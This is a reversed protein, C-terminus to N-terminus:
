YCRTEYIPETITRTTQGVIVKRCSGPAAEDASVIFSLELKYDVGHYQRIIDASYHIAGSSTLTCTEWSEIDFGFRELKELIRTMIPPIHRAEIYVNIDLASGWSTTNISTIRGTPYERQIAAIGKLTPKHARRAFTLTEVTARRGAIFDRLKQKLVSKM